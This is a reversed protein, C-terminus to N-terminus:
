ERPKGNILDSRIRWTAAAANNSGSRIGLRDHLPVPEARVDVTFGQREWYGRIICALRNENLAAEAADNVFGMDHLNM